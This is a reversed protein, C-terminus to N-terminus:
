RKNENENQKIKKNKKSCLTLTSNCSASFSTSPDLVFSTICCLYWINAEHVVCPQKPYPVYYHARVIPLLIYSLNTQLSIEILNEQTVWYM